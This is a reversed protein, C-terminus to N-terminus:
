SVSQILQKESEIVARLSQRFVRRAFGADSFLLRRFAEGEWVLLCSDEKARVSATRPMDCLLAIEGVIQGPSAEAVAFEAGDKDVLVELAGDILLLAEKPPAHERIIVEDKKVERVSGTDLLRKVGHATFGEFLSLELIREILATEDPEVPESTM